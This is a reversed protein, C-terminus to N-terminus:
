PRRLERGVAEAEAVVDRLPRGLRVAAAAADDHEVKVRGAGVKIRVPEGDVEVAGEWRARPWREITHGRVGLSGTESCLTAAVAPALAPEVLASVMHAAVNPM